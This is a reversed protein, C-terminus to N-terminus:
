KTAYYLGVIVLAIGGAIAIYSWTNNSSLSATGYHRALREEDTRPYGYRREGARGTQLGTGKTPLSM